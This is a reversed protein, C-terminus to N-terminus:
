HDSYCATQIQVIGYDLIEVVNAELTYSAIYNFYLYPHPPHM